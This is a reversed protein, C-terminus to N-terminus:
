IINKLFNKFKKNCVEVKPTLIFEYVLYNIFKNVRIINVM